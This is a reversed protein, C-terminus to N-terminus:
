KPKDAPKSALKEKIRFASEPTVEPLEALEIVDLSGVMTATIGKAMLARVQAENFVRLAVLAPDPQEAKIANERKSREADKTMEALVAKRLEDKGGPFGREVIQGGFKSCLFRWEADIDQVEHYRMSEHANPPLDSVQPYGEKLAGRGWLLSFLPAWYAPRFVVSGHGKESAIAIISNPVLM